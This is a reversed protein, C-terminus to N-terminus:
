QRKKSTFSLILLIVGTASFVIGVILMVTSLIKYDKAQVRGKNIKKQVPKTITKGIKETTQHIKSIDKITNVGRQAKHIKKKGEEVQGSIINGFIIILVGLVLLIVGSIRKPLQSKTKKSEM